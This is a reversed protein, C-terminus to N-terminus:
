VEDDGEYIVLAEPADPLKEELIAIEERWQQRMSKIIEGTDPDAEGCIHGDTTAEGYLQVIEKEDPAYEEIANLANRFANSAQKGMSQLIAGVVKELHALAQNDSQRLAIKRANIEAEIEHKDDHMFLAPKETKNSMTFEEM